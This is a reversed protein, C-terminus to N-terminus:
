AVIDRLRALNMMDLDVGDAGEGKETELIRPAHALRADRLINEFGVRGIKGDGIHEHRDLRSGCDGKSDNTHICRVRPGGLLTVIKSVLEDCISKDRLDYGAAFLHCTDLCVGLRDADSTGDIMARIEEITRGLTTGQGATTELLISCNFGATRHHAENLSRSIREIGAAEGEGVHAGPHIVLGVVGLAECRQLEDVLAKVSRERAAEDPSALNLLYSAHAFVPTISCALSADRFAKIQEDTLPKAAWQRQNKVFIQIADCGVRTGEIFANHLGSAASVHSGFRQSCTATTRASTKSEPQSKKKTSAM